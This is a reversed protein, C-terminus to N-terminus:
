SFILSFTSQLKREQALDTDAVGDKVTGRLFCKELISNLYENHLDVLEEFLSIGTLAKKFRLWETQVVEFM